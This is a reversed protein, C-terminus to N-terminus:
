TAHIVEARVLEIADSLAQGIRNAKRRLAVRAMRYDNGDLQDLSLAALLGPLLRSQRTIDYEYDSIAHHLVPNLLKAVRLLLANRRVSAESTAPVECHDLTRAADLFKEALDHLWALEVFKSTAQEYEKLSALFDKAVAVLDLPLVRPNVLGSLLNWHLLTDVSLVDAGAYAPLDDATHWWWGMGSGPIQEENSPPLYSSIQVTPLGIGSFSQDGNRGCRSNDVYKDRRRLWGKFALDEASPEGVTARMVAAAYASLEGTTNQLVKTTAGRAGINDVNIYAIGNRRLESWHHDAYWSSGAYGGQEHGTWWCFRVGYRPRRGAILLRALEIMLANGTANDTAGPGWSCYHGGVLVFYPEEGPIEAVPMRVKRWEAYTPASLKIRTGLRAHERLRAGDQASVQVAPLPSFRAIDAEDTPAGWLPSIQWNHRQPGTSIGILGVAGAQYAKMCADYHPLGDILAIRGDLADGAKVDALQGSLADSGTSKAFSVGAAAMHVPEPVHVSISADGPWHIFADFEVIENAVGLATLRGAIYRAAGAEADSGAIRAGFSAIDTVTAMLNDASIGVSAPDAAFSSTM